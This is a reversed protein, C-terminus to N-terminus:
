KMLHRPPSVTFIAWPAPEREVWPPLEASAAAWARASSGRMTAGGRELVVAHRELQLVRVAGDGNWREDLTPPPPTPVPALTGRPAGPRWRSRWWRWAWARGPGIRGVDSTVKQWLRPLVRPHSM